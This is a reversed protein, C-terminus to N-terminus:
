KGDAEREKQYQERLSAMALRFESASKAWQEKPTLPREGWDPILASLPIKEKAYPALVSSRVLGTLIDDRCQGWPEVSNLAMWRVFEGVSMTAELEGVTRSMERALRFKM